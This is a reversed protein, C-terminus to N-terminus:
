SLEFVTRFNRFVLFGYAHPEAGASRWGLQRFRRWGCRPVRLGAQSGADPASTGYPPLGRWLPTGNGRPRERGSACLGGFPPPKEMASGNGPPAESAVEVRAIEDNNLLEDLSEDLFVQDELDAELAEERLDESALVPKGVTEPLKWGEPDRGGRWLENSLHLGKLFPMLFLYTMGCYVLFGRVSLFKKRDARTGLAERLWAIGTKLKNWREQALFRRPM